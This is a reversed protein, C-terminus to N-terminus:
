PIPFTVPENFGSYDISTTISITPQEPTWSAQYQIMSEFRYFRLDFKGVWYDATGFLNLDPIDYDEIGFLVEVFVEPDLQLTIHYCLTGNVVEEGQLVPEIWSARIQESVPSIIHMYWTGGQVCFDRYDLPGLWWSMGDSQMSGAYFEDPNNQLVSYTRTSGTVDHGTIQLISKGSPDHSGEAQLENEEMGALAYLNYTSTKYTSLDQMTDFSQDWIQQATLPKQCSALALALLSFLFVSALVVKKM